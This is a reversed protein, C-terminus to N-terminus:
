WGLGEVDGCLILVANVQEDTIHDHRFHIAAFEGLLEECEVRLEFDDEHRAVGGIDDGMMADEIFLNVEDLLRKRFILEGGFYSIDEVFDHLISEGSPLCATSAGVNRFRTPAFRHTRGAGTENNGRHLIKM